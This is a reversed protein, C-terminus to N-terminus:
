RRGALFQVLMGATLVRGLHAAHVSGPRADNRAIGIRVLSDLARAFESSARLREAFGQAEALTSSGHLFWTRGFLRQAAKRGIKRSWLGLYALGDRALALSGASLGYGEATPLRALDPARADLLRRHFRHLAKRRSPQRIAWAANRWDLFPALMACGMRLYNSYFQGFLSPAKLAFFIANYTTCNMGTAISRMTALSAARIDGIAAPHALWSAATGALPSLRWDYFRELRPPAIDYFPFDQM